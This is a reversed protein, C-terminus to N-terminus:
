LERVVYYGASSHCLDQEIEAFKKILNKNNTPTISFSKGNQVHVSIEQFIKLFPNRHTKKKKTLQIDKQKGRVNQWNQGKGVKVVCTRFYRAWM